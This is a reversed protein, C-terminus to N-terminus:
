RRKKRKKGTAKQDSPVVPQRPGGNGGNSAAAGDGDDDGDGGNGNGNGNGNGAEDEEAAAAEIDRAALQGSAGADLGLASLDVSHMM